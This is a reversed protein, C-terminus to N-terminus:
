TGVAITLSCKSTANSATGSWTATGADRAGFLTAYHLGESLGTKVGSISCPGSSAGSNNSVSVAEQEVAGGDFDMATSASQNAACRFSGSTLFTVSEGAWSLFSNRIESNIEAFTPSTSTRDASFQTRSRQRSRQFYTRVQLSGDQSVFQASGNTYAMGVLTRTADGSKVPIGNTGVTYGTTSPTDLGLVGAAVKAYIYYLTTAVLGGNSVTLSAPVPYNLGNVWLYGGNVAALTLTTANTFQLQAGTAPVIAAQGALWGTGGTDPNTVNNDATSTWTLGVTVTSAVVAGAPYGGIQTQFTADYPVAGGMQQWQAWQSLSRLIGNMDQGYPPIGGLTMNTPEFGDNFSAYGPTPSSAFPPMRVYSGGANQAWFLQYKTPIGSAATM